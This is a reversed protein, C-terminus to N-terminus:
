VIEKGLVVLVRERERAEEFGVHSHCPHIVGTKGRVRIMVLRALGM